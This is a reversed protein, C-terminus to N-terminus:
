RWSIRQGLQQNGMKPNRGANTKLTDLDHVSPVNSVVTRQGIRYIASQVNQGHKMKGRVPLPWITRVRVSSADGLPLPLPHHHQIM